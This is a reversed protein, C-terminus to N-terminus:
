RVVSGFYGWTLYTPCTKVEYVMTARKGTSHNPIGGIPDCRNDKKV